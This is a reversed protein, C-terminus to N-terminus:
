DPAAPRRFFSRSMAAEVRAKIMDREGATLGETEPAARPTGSPRDDLRKGLMRILFQVFRM